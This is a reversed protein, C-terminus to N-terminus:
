FLAGVSRSIEEQQCLSEGVPCLTCFILDLTCRYRSSMKQPGPEEVAPALNCSDVLELDLVENECFEQPLPPSTGSRDAFVSLKGNCQILLIQHVPNVSLPKELETCDSRRRPPIISYFLDRQVLHVLNGLNQSFPL